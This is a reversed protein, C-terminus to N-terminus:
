RRVVVDDLPSITMSNAWVGELWPRHILYWSLYLTPVVWTEEAVLRYDAQRCLGLRDANSRASRARELLSMVGADHNFGCTAVFPALMGHPDPYDSAWAWVWLSSDKDAEALISSLPAFETRVRVGLDRWQTGWAAEVRRRTSESLGPDAFFLSLEPLGRGDAVGAEALLSRARGLDRALGLDHSHGPMAPPLLGGQAAQVGFEEVLRTRDLGHALAKRIRPDDFPPRAPFGLYEVCLLPIKVSVTDPMSPLKLPDMAWVLDYRGARWADVEDWPDGLGIWVEDINGRPGTWLPNAALVAHEESCERIVFPGNGVLTTPARWADDLAEVRHKPWPFFGFQAVLYLLGVRPASLRLEITRSDITRAELDELLHASLVAQERMAGYTFEFDAATLEQGDSWRLGERLRFRYVRGDVSVSVREALDPVVDGGEHLRLLGRFVNPGLTWAGVDYGHGPVWDPLLV